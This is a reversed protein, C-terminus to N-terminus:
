VVELVHCMDKMTKPLQIKSLLGETEWRENEEENM